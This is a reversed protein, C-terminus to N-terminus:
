EIVQPLLRRFTSVNQIGQKGINEENSDCNKQYNDEMTAYLFKIIM